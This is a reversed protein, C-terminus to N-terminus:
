VRDAKGNTSLPRQSGMHYSKPHEGGAAKAGVVTVLIARVPRGAGEPAQAPGTGRQSELTTVQELGERPEGPGEQQRLRKTHGVFSAGHVAVDLGRSYSNEFM